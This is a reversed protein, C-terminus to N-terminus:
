VRCDTQELLSELHITMKMTHNEMSLTPNLETQLTDTANQKALSTCAQILVLRGELDPDAVDGTSEFAGQPDAFNRESEFSNTGIQTPDM